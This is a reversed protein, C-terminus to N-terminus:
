LMDRNFAWEFLPSQFENTFNMGRGKGLMLPNKCVNVVKGFPYLGGRGSNGSINVNNFDKLSIDEGSKSTRSFEDSIINCGKFRLLHNFKEM